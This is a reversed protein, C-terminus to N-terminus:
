KYSVTARVCRDGNRKCLEWAKRKEPSLGGFESLEGFGSRNSWLASVHEAIMDARTLKQGTYLGVSRVIVWRKIKM